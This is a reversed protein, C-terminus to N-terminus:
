RYPLADFAAWGAQRYADCGPVYDVGPPPYNGLAVIHRTLWGAARRIREVPDGGAHCLDAVLGNSVPCAQIAVHLSQVGFLAALTRRCCPALAEATALRSLDWLHREVWGDHGIEQMAPTLCYCYWGSYCDDYSGCPEVQEHRRQVLDTFRRHLDDISRIGQEIRDRSLLSGFVEHIRTRGDM